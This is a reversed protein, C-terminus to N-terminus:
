TDLVSLRAPAGSYPHRPPVTAEIALLAERAASLAAAGLGFLGDIIADQREDKLEDFAGSNIMSQMANLAYNTKYFTTIAGALHTPVFELAPCLRDAEFLAPAIPATPLPKAESTRHQAKFADKRSEAAMRGYSRELADVESEIDARIAYLTNRMKRTLGRELREREAANKSHWEWYVAAAAVVAGSFIGAAYVAAAQVEARSWDIELM